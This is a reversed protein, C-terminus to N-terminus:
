IAALMSNLLTPNERDVSKCFEKKAESVSSQKRFFSDEFLVFEKSTRNQCTKKEVGVSDNM